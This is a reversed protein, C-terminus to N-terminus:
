ELLECAPDPHRAIENTQFPGPQNHPATIEAYRHDLLFAQKVCPKALCILESADVAGQVMHTSFELLRSVM